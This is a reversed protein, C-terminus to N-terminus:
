LAFSPQGGDVPSWFQGIDRSCHCYVVAWASPRWAPRCSVAPEDGRYRGCIVPALQHWRGLPFFARPDEVNRRSCDLAMQEAEILHVAEVSERTLIQTALYGWGAGLDAVVRGLKPPLHTALLASAPDVADASFIGPVTLFGDSNVTMGPQAWDSFCCGDVKFWFLKGHSKSITGAIPVRVRMERLVSEVGSVKQGDVILIGNPTAAEASAILARAQRKSRPLCVLSAAYDTGCETVCSYGRANYSAHDPHFSQVIELQDQALASLDFDADPAFIALRGVAPLELGGDDL